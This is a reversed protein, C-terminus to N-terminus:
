LGGQPRTTAHMVTFRLRLLHHGAAPSRESYVKKEFVAERPGFLGSVYRLRLLQCPIDSSSGKRPLQLLQPTVLANTNSVTSRESWWPRVRRRRQERHEM